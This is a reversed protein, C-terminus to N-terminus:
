AFTNSSPPNPENASIWIFGVGMIGGIVLGTVVSLIIPVLIALLFTVGSTQTNCSQCREFIWWGFFLAFIVLFAIGIILSWWLVGTSIHRGQNNFRPSRFTAWINIVLGLIIIFTYIGLPCKYPQMGPHCQNPVAWGNPKSTQVTGVTTTGGPLIVRTTGAAGEATVVRAPVVGATRTLTVAPQSIVVPQPAGSIVRLGPQTTIPIVPPQIFAM